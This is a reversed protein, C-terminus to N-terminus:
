SGGLLAASAILRSCRHLFRMVTLRRVPISGLALIVEMLGSFNNLNLFEKATEICKTIIYVRQEFGEAQLIQTTFWYNTQPLQSPLCCRM